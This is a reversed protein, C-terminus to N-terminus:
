FSQEHSEDQVKRYVWTHAVDALKALLLLDDKGFSPSQHWEGKKLVEGGADVEDDEKWLRDFTVNYVVAGSALRNAWVNARLNRIRIVRAPKDKAAPPQAPPGDTETRDSHPKAM